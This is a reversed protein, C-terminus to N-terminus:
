VILMADGYSFFRYGEAVATRYAELILEREAFASVLMLLTSRPLHFNTLMAQVYRFEFGPQIFLATEGPGAELKACSELTRVVTTGVAVVRRASEIAAVTGPPIAFTETHMVHEDLTEGRVPMFTGPGVDLTVFARQIERAALQQLLHDTFHLGATPAAVSRAHDARAFVTQYREDDLPEADRGLYPPLPMSGSRQTLVDVPESLEVVVFGDGENEVVEIPSQGVQLRMGPRLARAGTAMARWRGDGIPAVLLLDVKGGTEVKYTRLRAKLVRSDNAVLLDGAALLAPLDSFRHHTISRDSRDVVMLRSADRREAPYRAIAEDPLEFDFDATRM